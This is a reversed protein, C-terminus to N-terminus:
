RWSRVVLSKSSTVAVDLAKQITAFPKESSGDGSSDSGSGGDAYIGDAGLEVGAAIHPQPSPRSFTPSTNNDCWKAIELADSVEAFDGREPFLKQAYKLSLKRMQCDLEPPAGAPRSPSGGAASMAVAFLM